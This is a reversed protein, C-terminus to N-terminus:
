FKSVEIITQIFPLKFITYSKFGAKSFIQKLEMESREKGGSSFVMMGMDFALGVGRLCKEEKDVDKKGEVILADVIIVKGNEPIAEYCRKLVRVCDDDDWDHLVWKMFVADAPPIHEFMNGSVHEVGAIPLASAIVHPLDFNIGRIHKYNEVIISLASGVGGAVDVLSTIKKFGEEYIKVVSAMVARTDCSMAENFTKNAEPNNVGYDWNSMGFAKRFACGGELVSEHLHLWGQFAIHSTAGLLFPVYNQIPVGTSLGGNSTEKVLLKSLGTLGYRCQKFDEQHPIETFVQHSALFRLLRFLYEICPPNETSASVHAAIEELTLSGSAQAIIDPINLLVSARLAMPKSLGLIIDYLKLQCLLTESQAEESSSIHAPQPISIAPPAM